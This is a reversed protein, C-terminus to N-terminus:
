GSSQKILRGKILRNKVHNLNDVFRDVSKILGSDSAKYFGEYGQIDKWIEENSQEM